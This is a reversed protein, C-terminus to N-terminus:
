IVSKGSNTGQDRIVGVHTDRWFCKVLSLEISVVQVDFFARDSCRSDGTGYLQECTDTVDNDSLFEGDELRNM